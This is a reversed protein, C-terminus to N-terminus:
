MAYIREGVFEKVISAIYGIQEDDLHPHIPLSLIDRAVSESVPFDGPKKGLYAFARQLHLPIPYYVATPVGRSSLYAALEDRSKGVSPSVRVSYQHFIHTCEPAVYPVLINADNLERTYKAALAQRRRNWEDLYKLKVNLIAAQLTDLRSNVGIVEHYYKKRAGHLTIMRVKEALEGDNTVIMGADGYAGLNKSPFFSFCALDGFTGVKKGRYEAGFAQAADEIVNLGNKRAVDLIPDMDAPQGFLHVPIIAKTRGTIASEIRSPDLNFTRPDIDVYVPTAGLLAIAEATAVFSFCSTIVEDGRGIGLAMMAVQLADTGSACGIAYKVGLYNVVASEFEGVERGMIFQTSNLVKQIAADIELKLGEYQSQLDVFQIKKKEDM